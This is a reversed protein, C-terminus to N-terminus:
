MEVQRAPLCVRSKDHTHYVRAIAPTRFLHQTSESELPSLCEGVIAVTAPTASRGRVVAEVAQATALNDPWPM